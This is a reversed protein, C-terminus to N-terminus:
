NKMPDADLICKSWSRYRDDGHHITRIPSGSDILCDLGFGSYMTLCVDQLQVGRILLIESVFVFCVGVEWLRTFDM